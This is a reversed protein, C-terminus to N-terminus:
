CRTGLSSRLTVEVCAQTDAQLPILINHRPVNWLALLFSSTGEQKLLCMKETLRSGVKQHQFIGVIYGLKNAM